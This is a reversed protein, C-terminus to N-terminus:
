EPSFCIQSTVCVATFDPNPESPFFRDHFKQLDQAGTPTGYSDVLVITQGAGDNSTALPGLGYFSRIQDPGYCHVTTSVRNDPAPRHCATGLVGPGAATFASEPAQQAFPHVAAVVAATGATPASTALAIAGLSALLSSRRM